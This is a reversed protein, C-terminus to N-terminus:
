CICTIIPSTNCTCPLADNIGGGVHWLSYRLLLLLVHWAWEGTLVSM